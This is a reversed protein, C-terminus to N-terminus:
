FDTPARYELLSGIAELIAWHILAIAQCLGMLVAQIDEAENIFLFHKPGHDRSGSTGTDCSELVRKM